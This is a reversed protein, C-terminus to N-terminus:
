NGTRGGRTAKSGGVGGADGVCSGVETGDEYRDLSTHTSLELLLSASNLTATWSFTAERETFIGDKISCNVLTQCTPPDTPMQTM